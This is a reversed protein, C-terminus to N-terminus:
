HHLVVIYHLTLLLLPVTVEFKFININKTETENHNNSPYCLALVSYVEFLKRQGETTRLWKDMDM